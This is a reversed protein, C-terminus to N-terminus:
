AFGPLIAFGKRAAARAARKARQAKYLEVFKVPDNNLYHEMRSKITWNKPGFKVARGKRQGGRKKRGIIEGEEDFRVHKPKPARPQRAKPQRRKRGIVEGDDDFRIHKGKAKRPMIESFVVRYKSM